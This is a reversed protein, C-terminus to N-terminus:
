AARLSFTPLHQRGDVHGVVLELKVGREALIAAPVRAGLKGTAPYRARREFRPGDRAPSAVQWVEDPTAGRLAQHPRHHNYWLVIAAIADRMAEYDLPMLIRRLGETKLTLILREVLAISGFRHLAGWRPKVNRADCWARYEDQFQAGKDTVTYKPPSGNMALALDLTDCLQAATPQTPFLQACVVKRSFYDVIVVLWWAFPWGQPLAFPCWSTWFGGGIPCLTLDIGWVHGPYRAIVTHPKEGSTGADANDTGTPSPTETGSVTSPPASDPAPLEKDLLRSVTSASLHLGARALLDAIRRRGAFPLTLKLSRVLHALYDPFRNVPQPLALLADKGQADLRQTWTTITAASLVLRRAAAAATWGRAAKLELIAFRDTPCYHPRRNAPMALIRARLLRNEESLLALEQEAHELRAALRIRKVSSNIAWSRTYAVAFRGLAIAHLIATQVSAPWGKPLPVSPLELHPLPASSLAPLPASCPLVLFLSIVHFGNPERAFFRSM